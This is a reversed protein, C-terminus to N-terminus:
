EAGSAAEWQTETPSPAAGRFAEHCGCRGRSAARGSHVGNRGGGRGRGGCRRNVGGRERLNVAGAVFCRLRGVIASMFAFCNSSSAATLIWRIRIVSVERFTFFRSFTHASRILPAFSLRSLTFPGTRRGVFVSRMVVRLDGQPSPVFVHSRYSIRMWVRRISRCEGASITLCIVDIEISGPTSTSTVMASM